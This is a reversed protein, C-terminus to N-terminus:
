KFDLCLISFDFDITFISVNSGPIIVFSLLILEVAQYKVTYQSHM